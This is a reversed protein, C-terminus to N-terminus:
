VHPRIAPMILHGMASVNRKHSTNQAVNQLLRPVRGIHVAVNRHEVRVVEVLDVILLHLSSVMTFFELEWDPVRDLRASPRFNQWNLAFCDLITRSQQRSLRTVM